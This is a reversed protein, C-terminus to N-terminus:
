ESAVKQLIVNNPVSFGIPEVEPCDECGEIEFWIGLNEDIDWRLIDPSIITLKGGLIGNGDFHRKRQDFFKFNAQTSYKEVVTGYIYIGQTSPNHGLNLDFVTGINTYNDLEKNNVVLSYGGFLEWCPLPSKYEQNKVEGEKLVIKFVTDNIEYKWTGVYDEITYTQGWIMCPIFSLLFLLLKKM